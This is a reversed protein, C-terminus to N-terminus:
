VAKIHAAFQLVALLYVKLVITNEYFLDSVAGKAPFGDVTIYGYTSLMLYTVFDSESNRVNLVPLEEDFSVEYLPDRPTPVKQGTGTTQCGVLAFIPLLTLLHKMKM